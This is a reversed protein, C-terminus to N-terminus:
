YFQLNNAIEGWNIVNNNLNSFAMMVSDALNPSKVGDPTKDIRLKGASNISYVPQSLEQMLKILKPINSNISILDDPNNFVGEKVARHTLQFRKRLEWWSQAKLNSYFDKNTRDSNDLAKQDPMNVGVSGRFAIIDINQKDFVRSDGRVGAGLGDADYILERYNHESCLNFARGVTELIDSDQGSWEEIYELLFGYRGCFSNTDKGQDAVDLAAIRTGTPVIGLKIHADVSSQIWEYPIVVYEASATYSIDLEQAIIIPDLEQCKKDYWTQDRRPDDRWHFSFVDIKGNHRKQAFPNAMGNPTSIDIRCNTTESLSAEVIEPREIFAAEDIFYISTRAGRGIGDGSEGVIQSGNPFIIRMFPMSTSLDMGSLFCKPLHQLFYRAKPFIAKMDGIVDVYEQKRSGFGIVLGPNFLCLTCALAIALWSMGVTRTKEVLGPKQNRWHDLTWDIWEAQKPYLIFPIASPLSKEPNRPDFTLGWDSIFDILNHKYHTQLAALTQKDNNIISLRKIRANYIETYNPNKFDFSQEIRM